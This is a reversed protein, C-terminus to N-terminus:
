KKELYEELCLNQETMITSHPLGVYRFHWPEAIIGTIKEKEKTYRVIYGFKHCNAALWKQQPTGNFSTNAVTVDFSLGTHHESTGPDAVTVRTASVANSKSFGDDIYDRVKNNFLKEQYEYSRYGSSIQYGTIGDEKAAKFMDILAEVAVKNGEIQSGVIYALKSPVTNRLLVLNSPKQKSALPYNDNVLVLYDDPNPTPTPTVRKANESYLLNLTNYSAIGDITLANQEQFLLVAEETGNGFQGDLEGNYYGLKNLATQLEKVEDGSSGKKFITPTATPSPTPICYSAQNSYLLKRTEEGAIGDAVLNHQTQFHLVSNATGQGYQGDIEGVYFGLEFLRQQLEKVSDGANGIKLIFTTPAPTFHPNLTIMLMSKVNATPTPTQNRITTYNQYSKQTNISLFVAIVLFVVFLGCLICTSILNKKM